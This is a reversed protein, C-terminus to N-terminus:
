SVTVGQPFRDQLIAVAESVMEEVVERASMLERVLGAGQGAPQVVLDFRQAAVASATFRDMLTGQLPMPMTPMGSKEWAEIVPNALARMTKGSYIRTIRTDEDGAQVIRQKHYDRIGAERTALFRTGVWAGVAGLALAAVVGRGDAIGGAAMVPIPAVADVVQPVLSFTGVRGTHGGADYGQAVIVDVGSQAVRKAAKVNGVLSMVVMGRKHAERAWPGPDGLGSVFVPVRDEFVVRLQERITEPFLHRREGPPAGGLPLDFRERLQEVFTVLKPDLQAEQVTAGSIAGEGGPLLLDVGFPKSTLKKIRVIDDHIVPPDMGAAGLVGLGGANSVAAVLEPNTAFVWATRGGMGAQVIPYEIGLLECLRTRLVPRKM